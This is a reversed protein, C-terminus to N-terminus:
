FQNNQYRMFMESIPNQVEVTSFFRLADACPLHTKAHVDFSNIAKRFASKEEKTLRNPGTYPLGAKLVREYLYLGYIENRYGARHLTEQAGHKKWNDVLNVTINELSVDKYTKWFDTELGEAFRYHLKIYEKVHVYTESWFENMYGPEAYGPCYSSERLSLKLVDLIVSQLYISSAEMPEPFGSANGVAVVNKVWIKKRYGPRWTILFPEDLDKDALKLRLERLAVEKSVFRDSFVYGRNSYGSSQDIRWLWGSPMMTAETAPLPEGEYKHRTVWAMNCLLEDSLDIWPEQYTKGLLFSEYGTCDIFLDGDVTRGNNLRVSKVYFQGDLVAKVVTGKIREVDHTDITKDMFEDFKDREFHLGFPYNCFVESAQPILPTRRHKILFDTPDLYEEDFEDRYWCFPKPIGLKSTLFNDAEFPLVYRKKDIGFHYLTGNKLVPMVERVLNSFTTFTGGCLHNMIHPTTSEGVPLKPIDDSEIIAIECRQSAHSNILGAIAMFGSTGGGVVVIKKIRKNRM